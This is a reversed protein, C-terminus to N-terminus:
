KLLPLSIPLRVHDM